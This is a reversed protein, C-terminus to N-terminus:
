QWYLNESKVKKGNVLEEAIKIICNYKFSLLLM